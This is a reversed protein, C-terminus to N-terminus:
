TELAEKRGKHTIGRKAVNKEKEREKEVEVTEWLGRNRRGEDRVTRRKVWWRDKVYEWKRDESEREGKERRKRVAEELM